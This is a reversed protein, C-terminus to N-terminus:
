SRLGLEARKVDDLPFPADKAAAERWWQPLDDNSFEAVRPGKAKSRRSEMRHIIAADSFLRQILRKVPNPKEKQFRKHDFWMIDLSTELSIEWWAYGLSVQDWIHPYDRCYRCWVDLLLDAKPSDGFYVQGTSFSWGWRKAVALDPSRGILEVVPSRLLADADIWLVPRKTKRRMDRIFEAKQACNEVWSGRSPRPEIRAELGLRSAARKLALAHGEYATGPTFYSVILPHADLRRPVDVALREKARPMEVLPKM